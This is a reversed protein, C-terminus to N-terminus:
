LSYSTMFESGLDPSVASLHLGDDAAIGLVEFHDVELWQLELM